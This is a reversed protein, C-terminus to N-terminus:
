SMRWLQIPRPDILLLEAALSDQSTVRPKYAPLLKRENVTLMINIAPNDTRYLYDIDVAVVGPVQHIVAMIESLTVDQGFNRNEFSFASRLANEVASFVLEPQYEFNVKVKAGLQFFAPRFTKVILPVLPDGAKRIAALLEEYIPNDEHVAVGKTGAITLFVSRKQGDWTWTALTKGIGSFAMAFDQYDRLSVIRDLTMVILSANCRVQDRTEGSAAGSAALPNIVSRVGLPRTLLLSLQESDVLGEEGMGKRYIARINETGTPVRAGTLGDGFQVTTKGDADTRVTYIKETPGHGYLAPVEQWKLGDIRIELTSRAGSSNSASIYTMPPQRLTFKQFEVRADGSGLVEETSEGHTAPSINGNLTVTNRKYINQLGKTFVVQTYGGTITLDEITLLESGSVGELDTREGTLIVKQGVELELYPGDLGISNTKNTDPIDQTLPLDALALPESEALYVTTERLKFDGFGDSRDLNLRTVKASLTFDARSVETVCIVQYIKPESVSPSQLVVWRNPLIHDYTRDLYIYCYPYPSEDKLTRGEWTTTHTGKAKSDLSDWNPANHGFIAAKQRLAFIGENPKIDRKKTHFVLNKTLANVPWKQVKALSFLDARPWTANLITSSVLTSTLKTPMTLFYGPDLSKLVFPKPPTLDDERVFDCRTTKRDPDTSVKMIRKVQKREGDEPNLGPVFFLSDGAKLNLGLGKFVAFEMDVSLEQEITLRPLMANWEPRGEIKEVTEFVQPKQGPGPISQVRTGADITTIAPAGKSDEIQFALYARAAVGPRPRYGILQALLYLSRAETATRLYSENAIREQYFTLVDAMTAWADLLAIVFDNDDRTSLNRLAPLDHASIRALMSEKFQSHTGIRYAIASLGPRNEVALPIRLGIGECCCSDNLHRLTPDKALTM